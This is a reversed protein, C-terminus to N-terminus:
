QIAGDAMRRPFKWDAHATELPLEVNLEMELFGFNEGRCATDAKDYSDFIGQIEPNGDANVQMVLYVESM